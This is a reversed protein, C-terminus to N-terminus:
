QPPITGYLVSADDKGLNAIAALHVKRGHVLVSPSVLPQEFRTEEWTDRPLLKGEQPIGTAFVAGTPTTGFIVVHGNPAADVDFEYIPLSGFVESVQGSPEFKANLHVMHLVAPMQAGSPLERLTPSKIAGPVRMLLFLWYTNGNQLLRADRIARYNGISKSMPLDADAGLNSFVVPISAGDAYKVATATWQGAPQGKVFHPHDYVAFPELHLRRDQSGDPRKLMAWTVASEARLYLTLFGPGAAPKADWARGDGLEGAPALQMPGTHPLASTESLEAKRSLLLHVENARHFLTLGTVPKTEGADIKQLTINMDSRLWAFLLPLLAHLRM